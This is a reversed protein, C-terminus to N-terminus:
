ERRGNANSGETVWINVLIRRKNKDEPKTGPYYDDLWDYANDLLEKLAFIAWERKLYSTASEIDKVIFYGMSQKNITAVPKAKNGLPTIANKRLKQEWGVPRKLAIESCISEM